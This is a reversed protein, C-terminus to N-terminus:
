QPLPSDADRSLAEAAAQWVAVPPHGPNGLSLDPLAMYIRRSLEDPLMPRLVALAARKGELELRLREAEAFLKEVASAMVAGVASTVKREAWGLANEADALAGKCLDRASRCATVTNEAEQEAFRDRDMVAADGGAVLAAVRESVRQGAQERVASLQRKAEFLQNEIREVAAKAGDVRNVVEDRAVIAVALAARPGTREVMVM